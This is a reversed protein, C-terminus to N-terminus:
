NRFSDDRTFRDIPFSLVGGGYREYWTRIRRFKVYSLLARPFNHIDMFVADARRGRRYRRSHSLPAAVGFAETIGRFRRYAAANDYVGRKFTRPPRDLPPSFIADPNNEGTAFCRFLAISCWRIRHSSSLIARRERDTM